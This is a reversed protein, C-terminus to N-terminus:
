SPTSYKRMLNPATLVILLFIFSTQFWFIGLDVIGHILVVAILSGFLAFQRRLNENDKIKWFLKLFWSFPYVLLSTGVIGYSLLTDLIINHAHYTEKGGYLEYINRYTLPGQGFLLNDRIGKLATEWIYFRDQLAWELNEARPYNGSMILLVFLTGLIVSVILGTKIKGLLLFFIVVTSVFVVPTSRTGTFYVALINCLTIVGYFVKKYKKNKRHMKYLGILIFFELMLAYYNPNYFTVEVREQHEKGFIPSLFTYDWEGIVKFYELFAYIFLLFSIYLTIKLVIELYDPRVNEQYYNFFLFYFIFCISIWFGLANMHVLSIALSHVIFLSFFLNNPKMELRRFTVDRRVLVFLLTLFFLGLGM